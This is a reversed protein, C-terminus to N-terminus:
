GPKGDDRIMTGKAEASMEVQQQEQKKAPFMRDLHEKIKTVKAM